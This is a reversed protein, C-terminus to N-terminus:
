FQVLSKQERRENRKTKIEGLVKEQKESAIGLKEMFELSNEVANGHFHNNFYGYVRKVNSALRNIRDVWPDLEEEKYLYNYWPREGRGHWRVFAFDDSTTTLDIPLLPEDVITNAVNYKRLLANLDPDRLWSKNRFEVAFSYDKPLAEFFEELKKKKSLSFSPPLQILLPGLKGASKMPSLLDLFRVLELEAGLSLDLQKEHTITKPLKVSYMFNEPANRVWGFVLGKPPFAYFTSDIEATRFVSSYFKLKPTKPDPYFVGEWEKYSWGSTGIAVKESASARDLDVGAKEKREDNNKEEAQKRAKVTTM